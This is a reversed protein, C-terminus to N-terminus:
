SGPPPHSSSPPAAPPGSPGVEEGDPPQTPNGQEDKWISFTYFIIKDPDLRRDAVQRMDGTPVRMMLYRLAEAFPRSYESYEVIFTASKPLHIIANLDLTSPDTVLHVDPRDGILYTLTERGYSHLVYVIPGPPFSRVFMGMITQRPWFYQMAKDSRCAREFYREYGQVAPLWALAAMGLAAPIATLPPRLGALDDFARWALLSALLCLWPLNLLLRTLSPGLFGVTLLLSAVCLVVLAVAPDRRRAVLLLAYLFGLTALAAVVTTEPELGVLGYVASVGDSIFRDSQIVAYSAPYFNLVTAAHFLHALYTVPGAQGPLTAYAGRGLFGFGMHSFIMLLVFGLAVVGAGLVFPRRALPARRAGEPDLRRRFLLFIAFALPVSRFSTYSWMGLALALGCLLHDALRGTELARLFLAAAVLAFIPGLITRLGVRSYLLHWPSVALFVAALLAVRWGFRRRAFLYLALLTATGAGISVLRLPLIMEMMGSPDNVIGPQLDFVAPMARLLNLALGPARFSFAALYHFMTERNLGRETVTAFPRGKVIDNVELANIAEDNNLGRPDIDIRHLRLWLGGVLVLAVLTWELGPPIRWDRGWARGVGDLGPAPRRLVTLVVLLAALLYLAIGPALGRWPSPARSSVLVQGAIALGIAIPLGLGRLLRAPVTLDAGNSLVQDRSRDANDAEQQAAHSDPHRNWRHPESGTGRGEKEGLYSRLVEYAENIQKLREQAKRRLAPDHAFRDPHWVKVLDKYSERVQDPTADSRLGLIEFASELEIM